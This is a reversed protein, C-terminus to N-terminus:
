VPGEVQRITWSGAVVTCTEERHLTNFNVMILVTPEGVLALLRNRM